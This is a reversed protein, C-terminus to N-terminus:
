ANVEELMMLDNHPIVESIPTYGYQEAGEAQALGKIHMLEHSSYQCIGKVIADANDACRVIVADGRNFDGQVDVVHDAQLAQGQNLAEIGANNILVEGQSIL